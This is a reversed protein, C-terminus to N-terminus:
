GQFGGKPQRAYHRHVRDHDAGDTAPWDQWGEALGPESLRMPPAMVGRRPRRFVPQGNGAASIEVNAVAGLRGRLADVDSGVRRMVAPLKPDLGQAVLARCSDIFPVTSSCLYRGQYFADYIGSRDRENVVIIIPCRNQKRAVAQWDEPKNLKAAHVHGGSAGGNARAPNGNQAAM